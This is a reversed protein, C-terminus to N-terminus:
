PTTEDLNLDITVDIPKQEPPRPKVAVEKHQEWWAAAREDTWDGACQCARLAKSFSAADSYRDEPRKALCQLVVRGLDEPVDKNLTSPPEVNGSAHAILLQVVSQGKFPPEGTLLYYAVAGLAYLDARGDVEEYSSAQEPSMYLPTGSFSAGGAVTDGGADATKEKVLGFDLLKAIDYVGGRQAVFINAPKIDRHILGVGHAEALAGCVQRLLYVVRAPELPGSLEVLEDLSLGPLLEMVYYFTGDDTHGYDYIEITNPHTLKATTKVEKEFRATAMVDAESDPKILKMACPRKLLVHEAKYVDGMGGSGLKELLRYQGFQRATFAERRASNIIFTGYTGVLAAIIPLPVPSLSKQEALIRAVEPALWNQLALIIYPVIAISLMVAAGRQWTNPVFIGYVLIILTWAGMLLYTIGAVSAADNQSAYEALRASLMLSVQTVVLGFVVIEIGRLQSITFPRASRLGGLCTALAILIIARFWILSYIGQILSGIMALALIVTFVLTFASLRQRLLDFTEDAFKPKDGEVFGINARSVDVSANVASASASSAESDYAITPEMDRSQTPCSLDTPTVFGVV